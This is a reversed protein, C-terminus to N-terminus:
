WSQCYKGVIAVFTRNEVNQPFLYRSVKVKLNLNKMRAKNKRDFSSVNDKTVTKIKKQDGEAISELIPEFLSFYRTKWKWKM